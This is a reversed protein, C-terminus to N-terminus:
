AERVFNYKVKIHKSKRHLILNKSLTIASNRDYHIVIDGGQVECIDSMIKKLWVAQNAAECAIIYEAKTTSQSITGQKQSSWPFVWNGLKFTYSSTIKM